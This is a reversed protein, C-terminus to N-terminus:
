RVRVTGDDLNTRQRRAPLVEKLVELEKLTSHPKPCCNATNLPQPGPGDRERRRILSAEAEKTAAIVQNLLSKMEGPLVIDRLGVSRVSLGLQGAARAAPASTAAAASSTPWSSCRLRGAHRSGIGPRAAIRPLFTQEPHVSTRTALVPDAIVVNAVLNM